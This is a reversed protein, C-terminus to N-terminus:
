LEMNFKDAKLRVIIIVSLFVCPQESVHLCFISIFLKAIQQRSISNFTGVCFFVRTKGFLNVVSPLYVIRTRTCRNFRSFFLSAAIIVSNGISAIIKNWFVKMLPFDLWTWCNYCWYLLMFNDCWCKEKKGQHFM